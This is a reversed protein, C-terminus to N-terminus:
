GGGEAALLADMAADVGAFYDAARLPVLIDPEITLRPDDPTSFQWYRTSVGVQMPIPWNPLRVTRVDDWFNLGGGMPEGVFVAGTTQEIQTSFNSAASFTVRDTLVFLRGPRDIGPDRLVDLIPPFNHNDGGPNQRLDVIVRDVDAELARAKLARLVSAEVPRVQTYRVIMSRSAADYRWGFIPDDVGDLYALGPRAPLRLFGFDTAWNLYDDFPMPRIEAVRSSGDPLTVSLEVSGAGIVGLGRLVSTRLLLVPRFLPVTAPGDRPVLPEVAALVDAISQEGIADIRAGVLAPDDHADTVFVGEEFEHIRIPLVPGDDTPFAFQHGDRGDRSLLATVRQLGVVAEEPTLDPLREALHDLQAVWAARDIGHFPEPHIRELEALLFDLDARARDIAPPSAGSTAAPLTATPGAPGSPAPTTAPGPQCALLVVVLVCALGAISPPAPQQTRM